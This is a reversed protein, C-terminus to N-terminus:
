SEEGAPATSLPLTFSVAGGRRRSRREVWIRGQHAEVITRAIALGMGLGGRKTTFFPEFLRDAIEAPIGPGNDEVTVRALGRADRTIRVRIAQVRVQRRRRRAQVAELANQVLNLVVQEIQIRDARVPLPAPTLDVQFAVRHRVMEPRVLEAAERIVDRVDLPELQLRGKRVLDRFRRLIAAARRAEAAAHGLLRRVAPTRGAALRAIGADIDNAIAGLPQTLQHALSAGLEGATKVRLVHALQAEHERLRQEVQRRETLDRAIGTFKRGTADTFESVALDLPFRTGDKRLGEVERGTGIIRPVGTARYRALYGDHEKRHPVPMLLRVNKGTVEAAAYGFMREAARNFSLVTGREDITIIAEAATDVIARLRAEREGLRTLAAQLEQVKGQLQARVASLEDNLSQLTGRSTELETRTARLEEARNRGRRM